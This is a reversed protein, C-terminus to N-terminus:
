RRAESWPLTLFPYCDQYAVYTSLGFPPPQTIEPHLGPRNFFALHSYCQTHRRQGDYHNHEGNGNRQKSQKADLSVDARNQSAYDPSAPTELIELAAPLFQRATDERGSTIRGPKSQVEGPSTDASSMCVRRCNISPLTAHAAPDTGAILTDNAEFAAITSIGILTDGISSGNVTASGTRLFFEVAAGFVLRPLYRAPSTPLRRM